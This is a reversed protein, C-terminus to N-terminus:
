LFDLPFDMGVLIFGKVQSLFNQPRHGASATVFCHAQKQHHKRIAVGIQSFMVLRLEFFVSILMEQEGLTCGDQIYNVPHERPHSAPEMFFSM